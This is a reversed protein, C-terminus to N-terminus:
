VKENLQDRRAIIESIVIENEDSKLSTALDIIEEALDEPTREGRLSNTGTHLIIFEPNSDMSPKSYHEMQKTTAGSFSHVYLRDNKNRLKKRMLHPKLEKTMSDSLITVSRKKTSKAKIKQFGDDHWEINRDKNLNIEHRNESNLKQKSGGLKNSDVNRSFNMNNNRTVGNLKESNNPTVSARDNLMKIISDKSKLESKLFEIQDILVNVM